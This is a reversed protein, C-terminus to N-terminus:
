HGRGSREGLLREYLGRAEALHPNLRLAVDLVFLADDNRGSALCLEACALMAGFHRPELALAHHFDRLSEADRSQLYYLTGRKHWAEAYGPHLAVLRQLIREAAARARARSRRPHRPVDDLAALDRGADDRGVARFRRRRAPPAPRRPPPSPPAVSPPAAVDRHAEADRCADASHLSRAPVETGRGSQKQSLNRSRPAFPGSTRTSGSRPTSPSCRGPAIVKGSASRASGASRASTARSSRSRASSTACARPTGASASISRRVSTGPRPTIPTPSSWTTSSRRAKRTTAPRSRARRASSSRKPPRTPTRCGPPGSASRSAARRPQGARAPSTGSSRM